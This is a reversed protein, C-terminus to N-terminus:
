LYQIIKNFTVSASNLLDPFLNKYTLKVDAQAKTLGTIRTDSIGISRCFSYLFFFIKFSISVTLKKTKLTCNYTM